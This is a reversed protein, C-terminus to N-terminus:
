KDLRTPLAGQDQQFQRWASPCWLKLANGAHTYPCFRSQLRAPSAELIRSVVYQIAREIMTDNILIDDPVLALWELSHGTVLLDYSVDEATVTEKDGTSTSYWHNTWHGDAYQKQALQEVAQALRQRALSHSATSLVPEQKDAALLVALAYLAHTGFCSGTGLPKGCLRTCLQDFDTMRNYKDVWCKAPPLYLALAITTWELEEEWNFNALAAHVVDQITCRTKWLQIPHDRELGLEAMVALTQNPHIEGQRTVRDWPKFELGHRTPRHITAGGFQKKARSIDLLLELMDEQRKALGDRDRGQLRLAHLLDTWTRTPQSFLIKWVTVLRAEPVGWDERGRHTPLALPVTRVNTVSSHAQSESRPLLVPGIVIFVCIAAIGLLSAIITTRFDHIIM